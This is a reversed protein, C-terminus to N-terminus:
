CNCNWSLYKIYVLLTLMCAHICTCMCVYMCVCVYVCVCVYMCAYMCVYMCVCMCVYVCVYMCVYMCAYMWVLVIKKSWPLTFRLISTLWALNSYGIPYQARVIFGHSLVIHYYSVYRFIVNHLYRTKYINLMENNYAKIICM